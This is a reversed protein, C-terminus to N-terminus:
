KKIDNIKSTYNNKLLTFVMEDHYQGNWYTRQSIQGEKVFGIKEVVKASIFNQSFVIAELSNFNMQDFGYQVLRHIAETTIGQNQYTKNIIYGIEGRNSEVNINHISVMGLLQSPKDSFTVGFNISLQDELYKENIRIYDTAESLVTMTVRPIFTMTENDGRMAFVAEIDSDVIQRLTLRESRLLPFPDWDFIIM